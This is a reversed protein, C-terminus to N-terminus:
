RAPAPTGRGQELQRVGILSKPVGVMREVHVVCDPFLTRFMLQDVLRASQVRRAAHDVDPSVDASGLAYRMMLRIRWPEPLWHFVPSMFHPEVPFWFYPTQVVYRAAVRRVERAFDVMRGWDGVHELVSNAHAVHFAGDVVGQLDCGDGELHLFREDDAPHPEGPLNLVNVRVDLRELTGPPLLDWFARRGGIDLVDVRGHDDHAQELQGLLHSM